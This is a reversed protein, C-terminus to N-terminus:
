MEAARKKAKQAVLAKKVLEEKKKKAAAAKQKALRVAEDKKAQIEEQKEINQQGLTKFSDSKETMDASFSLIDIDDLDDSRTVLKHHNKTHSLVKIADARQRSSTLFLLVIGAIKM